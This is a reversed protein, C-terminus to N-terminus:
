YCEQKNHGRAMKNKGAARQAPRFLQTKRSAAVTYVACNDTDKGRASPIDTARAADGMLLAVPGAAFIRRM